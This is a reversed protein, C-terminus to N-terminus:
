AQKDFVNKKLRVPPAGTRAKTFELLILKKHTKAIKKADDINRAMRKPM